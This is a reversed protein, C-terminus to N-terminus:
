SERSPQRSIGEAEARSHPRRDPKGQRRDPREGRHDRCSSRCSYWATEVGKKKPVRYNLPYIAVDALFTRMFDLMDQQAPCEEHPKPVGPSIEGDTFQAMINTNGALLKKIQGKVSLHELVRRKSDANIFNAYLLKYRTWM